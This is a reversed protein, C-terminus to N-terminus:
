EGFVPTVPGLFAVSYRKGGLHGASEEESGQPATNNMGFFFFELRRKLPLLWSSEALYKDAFGLAM